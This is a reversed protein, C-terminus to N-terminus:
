ELILEYLYGPGSPANGVYLLTKGHYSKTFAPYERGNFWVRYNGDGYSDLLQVIDSSFVQGSTHYRGGDFFNNM